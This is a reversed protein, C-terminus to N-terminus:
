VTPVLTLAESMFRLRSKVEECEQRLRDGELVLTDLRVRMLKRLKILQRLSPPKFCYLHIKYYNQPCSNSVPRVPSFDLHQCVQKAEPAWSSGEKGAEPATTGLVNPVLSRDQPLCRKWPCPATITQPHNLHMVNITCKM